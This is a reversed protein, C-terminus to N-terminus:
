FFIGEVKKRQQTLATINSTLKVQNFIKTFFSQQTMQEKLLEIQKELSESHKKAENAEDYFAKFFESYSPRYYSYLSSGLEIYAQQQQQNIQKIKNQAEQISVTSKDIKEALKKIAIIKEDNEKTQKLSEEYDAIIKSDVDKNTSTLLKLGITEQIDRIVKNQQTCIQKLESYEKITIAM